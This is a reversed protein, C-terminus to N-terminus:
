SGCHCTNFGFAFNLDAQPQGSTEWGNWTPSKSSTLTIKAGPFCHIVSYQRVVFFCLFLWAQSSRGFNPEKCSFIEPALASSLLTKKRKPDWRKPGTALGAPCHVVSTKSSGKSQRRSSHPPASLMPTSISRAYLIKLLNCLIVM